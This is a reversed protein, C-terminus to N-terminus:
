LTAQVGLVVTRPVPYAGLDLGAQTGASGGSSVNPDFGRYRSLVLLNHGGAWVTIEREAKSWAKYRLILATLRAHDGPQLQYSSFTRLMSTNAAPVDTSRNNPTWRMLMRRSGNFVFGDPSDLKHLAQNYVQYGGMADAQLQLQWRGYAVEQTLNFLQRPLGSGLVEYALSNNATSLYTPAGTAADPGLYRYGYFASMPQGNILWQQENARYLLNEPVRFRNKQFAAALTTRGTLKHGPWTASLSAELGQNTVETAPFNRSMLGKIPTETTRRQYVSAELTLWRRWAARLGADHQLTHSSNIIRLDSYGNATPTSYRLYSQEYQRGLNSTAGVGAWVDLQSLWGRTALFTENGAHWTAQLAPNVVSQSVPLAHPVRGSDFRLSGELAYRNRYTYGAQTGVSHM